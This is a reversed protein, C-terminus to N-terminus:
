ARLSDFKRPLDYSESLKFEIRGRITFKAATSITSETNFYSYLGLARVRYTRKDDILNM